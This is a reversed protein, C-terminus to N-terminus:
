KEGRKVAQKIWDICTGDEVQSTTCRIMRYGGIAAAASREYEKQISSARNHKGNIWTGGDVEVLLDMEAVGDSALSPIAFDARWKRDPHFRYERAFLIRESALQAALLIEASVKPM